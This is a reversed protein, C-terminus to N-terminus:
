PELRRRAREQGSFGGREGTMESMGKSFRDTSDLNLRAAYTVGDAATAADAQHHKVASPTPLIKDLQRSKASHRGFSSANPMIKTAPFHRTVGNHKM